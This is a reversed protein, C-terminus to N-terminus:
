LCPPPYIPGWWQSNMEVEDELSLWEMKDGEFDTYEFYPKQGPNQECRVAVIVPPSKPSKHWYWGVTNPLTSTWNIKTHSM